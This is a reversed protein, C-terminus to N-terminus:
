ILKKPEASIDPPFDDDERFYCIPRQRFNQGHVFGFKVFLALGCDRRLLFHVSFLIPARLRRYRDNDARLKAARELARESARLPLESREARGDFAQVSRGLVDLREL